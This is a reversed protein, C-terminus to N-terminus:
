EEEPPPEEEPPALYAISVRQMNYEGVEYLADQVHHYLVHNGAWGRPDGEGDHTYGDLEEFEENFEADESDTYLVEGTAPNWAFRLDVEAM